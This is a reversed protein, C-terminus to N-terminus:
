ASVRTRAFQAVAFALSRRAADAREQEAKRRSALAQIAGRAHGRSWAAQGAKTYRAFVGDDALQISWDDGNLGAALGALYEDEFGANIEAITPLDPGGTMVTM